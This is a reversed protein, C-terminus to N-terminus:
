FRVPPAMVSKRLKNAFTRGKFCDVLLLGFPLAVGMGKATIIKNDRIVSEKSIIAGSLSEEFGPFCIAEVGHLLNMKGLISPAACIAAIYAGCVAADTIARRVVDSAELNLTGPMGGPLIIMEPTHDNWEDETIDATVTIGHSGTIRSGGVGVTTVPLDARRLLDLPTLAEVEEFGNALFLYIM